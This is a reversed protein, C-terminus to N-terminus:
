RRDDDDDDSVGPRRFVLDLVSGGPALPAPMGRVGAFEFGAKHAVQASAANRQDIIAEVRDAAIAEDALALGSVLRAARAAIGEGRRTSLVWYTIEVLRGSRRQLSVLGVLRSRDATRVVFTLGHRGGFGCRLEDVISASRTQTM